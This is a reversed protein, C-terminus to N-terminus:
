YSVHIRISNNQNVLKGLPRLHPFGQSKLFSEFNSQQNKDISILLGGSTQPDALIFKQHDELPSIKHHYSDWNRLTGGPYCDQKLYYSLNNLVPIDQFNLDANLGSGECIELLHGLLGFGTIDTMANVYDLDGLKEGLSNLQTMSTVMTKLDDEKLVGKKMATSLIGVGLPKTLYLLSDSQASSNKKVKHSAIIGNVSLGFIPEQSDISHGGALPINAEACTSRAGELVQNAISAPIKNIPWGLIAIALVPKAGMAYIDSIANTAAIRGFEFADNVIPMFFDVTSVLSINNGLELVAADDKTENGVMLNPFSQTTQSSALIESLISPSIKCGCGAGHSYQTLPYTLSTNQDKTM